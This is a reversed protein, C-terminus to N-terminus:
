LRAGGEEVLVCRIMHATQQYSGFVKELNNGIKKGELNRVIADIDPARAEWSSGVKGESILAEAPTSVFWEKTQALQGLTCLTNQGIPSRGYPPVEILAIQLFDENGALERAVQEYKAIARICDPCDHHYLLILWNGKSLREGIDLHQLIPLKQICPDHPCYFLCNLLGRKPASQRV